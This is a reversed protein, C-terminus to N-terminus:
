AVPLNNTQRKSLCGRTQKRTCVNETIVGKLSREETMEMLRNDWQGKKDILSFVAEQGLGDSNHVYM